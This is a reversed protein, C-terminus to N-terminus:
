APTVVSLNMTMAIFYQPPLAGADIWHKSRPCEPQLRMGQLRLGSAEILHGGGNSQFASASTTSCFRSDVGAAGRPFEGPEITQQFGL